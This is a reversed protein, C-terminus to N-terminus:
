SGLLETLPSVVEASVTIPIEGRAIGSVSTSTATWEAVLAKGALSADGVLYIPDLDITTGPRLHVKDFVIQASHSNEIYPGYPGGMPGTVVPYRFIDSSERLTDFLGTLGWVRPRTPMRPRADGESSYAWVNGSIVVEVRVEAFNHETENVLVLQMSEPIGEIAKARAHDPLLPVAEELYSAVQDRYEQVSRKEITTFVGTLTRSTQQPTREETPGLLAREEGERWTRQEDPTCRVAVVTVPEIEEVTIGDSAQTESAAFREALMDYDDQTALETKGSRRVFVDGKRCETAGTQDTYEKLMAVISDGFEPPEVTVVLIQKGNHALYQPSWRVTNRIYRSVCSLLDANDM